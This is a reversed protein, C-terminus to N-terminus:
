SLPRVPNEPGRGRFLDVFSDIRAQDYDPLRLAHEWATLVVAYKVDDRPVAVVGDWQGRYQKALAEISQLQVEGLKAKNYYIVINGHELAHVLKGAPQTQSYFGADTWQDFHKGSTPPDTEYSLATTVPVHEASKCAAREVGQLSATVPSPTCGFENPPKQMERAAQNAKDAQAMKVVAFGFLGIIAVLGIALAIMPAKDTRRKGKPRPKSM